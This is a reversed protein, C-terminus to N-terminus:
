QQYKQQELGRTELCFVQFRTTIDNVLPTCPEEPIECALRPAAWTNKSPDTEVSVEPFFKPFLFVISSSHDIQNVETTIQFSKSQFCSFSKSSFPSQPGKGDKSLQESRPSVFMAMFGESNSSSPTNFIIFELGHKDDDDDDDDDDDSDCNDAHVLLSLWLIM